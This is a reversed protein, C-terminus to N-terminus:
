SAPDSVSQDADVHDTSGKSVHIPRFIEIALTDDDPPIGGRHNTVERLIRESWLGQTQPTEDGGVLHNSALIRRLGDIHLMKGETSRAEIAGDTYAILTDGPGFEIEAQEPDFDKEACAGLVFTTSELDQISGDVGRLFSPPHGGSAYELLNKGPIVRFCVATAFISHKSLTLHIYKNLHSLLEGPSLDPQEAFRLDIEGHLRNVTLAAPIGHGTVDIIAVSLTENGDDDVYSHRAHLYDGGIQRMPEYRYVFHVEGTTKPSPFLAEHIQRAYALEQRLMGYRQNLFKNTSKQVRQNHKVGSIFLAPTLMAIAGIGFLLTMTLGTSEILLHSISSVSLFILVPVIAQRVTWPFVCCAVFHSIVFTWAGYSLSPELARVTVALLGDLIILGITLRIIRKESVRKEIVVILAFAYLVLWLGNAIVFMAKASGQNILSTVESNTFMMVVVFAFSLLGFGGWLSIFWILRRRLLQNTELHFSRRFETTEITGSKSM